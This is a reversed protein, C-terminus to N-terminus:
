PTRQCHGQQGSDDSGTQCSTHLSAGTSCRNDAHRSYYSGEPPDQLGRWPTRQEPLLFGTHQPQFSDELLRQELPQAKTQLPSGLVSASGLATAGSMGWLPPSPSSNRCSPGPPPAPVLCRTIHTVASHGSHHLETLYQTHTSPHTFSVPLQSPELARPRLLHFLPKTM